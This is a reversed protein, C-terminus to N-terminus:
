SLKVYGDQAEELMQQNLQRSIFDRNAEQRKILKICLKRRDNTKAYKLVDEYADIRMNIMEIDVKNYNKSCLGRKMAQYPSHFNM